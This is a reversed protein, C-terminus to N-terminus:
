SEKKNEGHSPKGAFLWRRRSSRPGAYARAAPISLEVETGSELKAASRRDSSWVTLQGGALKARERMGRLGFHGARGEEALLKPDIGKGDDRVRVRFLREDYRMEVEIHQAEAHRFANRLAEGAVRYVEDRLIPHLDRPAGEVQVTFEPPLNEGVALEKGLGALAAALDNTEAASSRLGQVADRGETIAQGARELTEALDKKPEGEALQEYVAHFRMLTGQFSQLLTDHLERAIRTREDVREDLRMNYERAMKRLRVQYVAGLLALFAAVCVAQFWRTQYYAPLVSFDIAAGETNWVGDNNCAIVRFRYPGPRLDNYFAQRRTGPAQWDADRGELRYRFRVKQPVAYSLATYDIELDRTLAPLRIGPDLAYAKQDAVLGTVEVPPAVANKSAHAPDIMQLVTSNAFWLRGDPTKASPTYAAVGAQVGDSSDLVLMNLKREADNWWAQMEEKPIEILGCLAYLWFNGADDSNLAPVSNCPLGNKETLIQQKGDKWAVVGFDTGALISGDAGAMMALARSNPHNGFTFTKVRGDRYQALDGTLLGIWIGSQPDAVIRRGGPMEAASFERKMKLDQIEVLTRVPGPSRAAEVWINHESDEAIGTAWGLASGDPRTIQRFSGAERVFLKDKIGVWLRGAHDELMSATQGAPLSKAPDASIGHTGLVQMRTTGIWVGGDPTAAVSQVEDEDLGESKSITKVRLERFMDLGQSTAVWLNGERDEFLDQVYDSSLGIESGYHDVDTGHIRYVGRIRTGVWVNDRSDRRLSTVGYAEGNLEPSRFPTMTGDVMRQLGAGRGARDMGIWLSGDSAPLIANVGNDGDNSRLSQPRYVKAAGSAWEELSTSGGLWIAGSSDQAKAALFADDRKNCRIESELVQCVPHTRDNPRTRHIWINGDRDEFIGTVLAGDNRHDIILRNNVIRALGAETGIWLSGDRAARLALIRQTPLNEGSPASWRAFNVGDFKYLGGESGVWIYGDKTQTVTSVLGGFYGDQVRWVTHRYQSIHANPTDAFGVSALCVLVALGAFGRIRTQARRSGLVPRVPISVGPMVSELSGM